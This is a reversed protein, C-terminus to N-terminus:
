PQAERTPEPKVPTEPEAEESGQIHRMGGPPPVPGNPGFRSKMMNPDIEKNGFVTPLPDTADTAPTEGCGSNFWALLLAVPCAFRLRPKPM